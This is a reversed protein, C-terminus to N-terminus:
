VNCKILGHSLLFNKDAQHSPPQNRSQSAPHYRQGVPFDQIVFPPGYLEYLQYYFYLDCFTRLRTDFRLPNKRFAIVSPMGVTNKDFNGHVYRARSRGTKIGSANIQVANSIAWGAQDLGQDFQQLADRVMFVDDQCMIKVRDGTAHDLSFNLNEAAGQVPNQYYVIPLHPFNKIERFILSNSSNDSVIIEYPRSYRQNEITKLLMNFLFPGVGRQEYTPICVSLM